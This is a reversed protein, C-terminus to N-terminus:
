GLAELNAITEMALARARDADGFQHSIQVLAARLRGIENLLARRDINGNYTTWSKDREIIQDLDREPIPESRAGYVLQGM